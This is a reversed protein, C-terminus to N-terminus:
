PELDDAWEDLQKQGSDGPPGDPTVPPLPPDPRPLESLFDLLGDIADVACRTVLENVESPEVVGDRLAAFQGYNAGFMLCGYVSQLMFGAKPSEPAGAIDILFEAITEDLGNADLVSDDLRSRAEKAIPMADTVLDNRIFEPAEGFQQTAMFKSFSRFESQDQPFVREVVDLSNEAAIGGLIALVLAGCVAIKNRM